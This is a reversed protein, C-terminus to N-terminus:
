PGGVFEVMRQPDDVATRDPRGIVALLGAEARQIPGFGSGLVVDEDLRLANGQGRANRRDIHRIDLLQCRQLVSQRRDSALHAMRYGLRTRHHTVSAVVRLWMRLAQSLHADFWIKRLPVRLVSAPQANEAPDYHSRQTPHMLITSKPDAVLSPCVDM